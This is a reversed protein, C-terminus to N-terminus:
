KIDSTSDPNRDLFRLEPKGFVELNLGKASAVNELGEKMLNFRSQALEKLYVRHNDNNQMVRSNQEMRIRIRRFHPALKSVDEFVKWAQVEDSFEATPKDPAQGIRFNRGKMHLTKSNSGSLSVKCTRDAKDLEVDINGNKM